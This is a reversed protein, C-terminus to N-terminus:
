TTLPTRTKDFITGATMWTSRAGGACKWREDSGRWGQDGGCAPCRFGEPWRLGELYTRFAADDPVV